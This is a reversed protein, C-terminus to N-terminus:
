VLRLHRKVPKIKGLLYAIRENPLVKNFISYILCM